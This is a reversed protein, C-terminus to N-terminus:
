VGANIVFLKNENPVPMANVQVELDLTRGGLGGEYYATMGRVDIGQNPLTRVLEMARVVPAFATRGVRVGAPIAAVKQATWVKTSTTATGGDNFPELTQENIVFAFDTGLADQLRMEIERRSPVIGSVSQPADAQIANYTAQRMMAGAVPGIRETASALFAQFLNYANVSGDNWATPATTYRTADFNFSATYTEGTQPNKQIVTGNAWANFVDMEIRRYNSEVLQNLKGPISTEMIQQLVAANGLTREAMKQMEYEGWKFYSEIPVISVKRTDPTKNPILRGRQNWERRDAVPRYDITTIDDLDVSDVNERPFFREYLLNDPVDTPNITQALVTLAPESLTDIASIWSFTSM